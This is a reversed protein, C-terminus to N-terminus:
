EKINSVSVVERNFIDKLQDRRSLTFFSNSPDINVISAVVPVRNRFDPNSLVKNDVKTAHDFNFYFALVFVIVFSAAAGMWFYIKKSKNHKEYYKADAFLENMKGDFANSPKSFTLTKLKKEFTERDLKETKDKM